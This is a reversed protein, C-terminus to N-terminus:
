ESQSARSVLDEAVAFRLRVLRSRRSVARRYDAIPTEAVSPPADGDGRPLEVVLVRLDGDLVTYIDEGQEPIWDLVFATALDVGRSRLFM